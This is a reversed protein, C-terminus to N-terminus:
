LVRRCSTTPPRRMARRPARRPPPACRAGASWCASGRPTSRRSSCRATRPRLAPRLYLSGDEDFHYDVFELEHTERADDTAIRQYVRLARQLQSATLAEAVELLREETSATAVRTLTRVKTFTLAGRSFAERIAPLARLAEAVRVYERAERGTIGCRWALFGPLDDSIGAEHFESVRELWRSTAASLHAALSALEDVRRREEQFREQAKELGIEPSTTEM